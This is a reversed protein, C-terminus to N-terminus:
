DARERMSYLYMGSAVIGLTIGAAWFARVLMVGSHAQIIPYPGAQVGGVIAGTMGCFAAVVVLWAGAGQTQRMSLLHVFLVSGMIFLGAAYYAWFYWTNLSGLLHTM